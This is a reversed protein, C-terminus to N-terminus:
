TPADIPHRAILQDLIADRVAGDARETAQRELDARIRGRLEALTDSRGHDRAFEDDLPPLEKARLDVVEVEFHVSRGALSPDRLGGSVARRALPARWPATRRDPARLALPFSRGPRSSCATAVPRSPAEVVSSLNLTVVDGSEVVQRDTIPRWSPSRSACRASCASSRTTVSWRRRACSTSAVSSASCSRRGVDVTAVYRLGEGPKLADADIEPTGVVALQHDHVAHHFSDEILRGLVDRRIQEGFTRELVRRPAKGPRFGPLRAQRGVQAFARDVEAQVTPAAIEVQLRKRSPGVEEVTVTAHEHAHASDAPL